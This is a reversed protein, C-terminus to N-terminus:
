LGCSAAHLAPRYRGADFHEQARKLRYEIMLKEGATEYTENKLMSELKKIANDARERLSAPSRAAEQPAEVESGAADYKMIITAATLPFLLLWSVWRIGEFLIDVITPM